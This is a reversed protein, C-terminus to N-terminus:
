ASDTVIVIVIVIAIVIVVVIMVVVLAVHVMSADFRLWWGLGELLAPGPERFLPPM